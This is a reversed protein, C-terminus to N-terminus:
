KEPSEPLSFNVLGLTVTNDIEAMYGRAVARRSELWGSKISRTLASDNQSISRALREAEVDVEASAVIIAGGHIFQPSKHTGRHADRCGCWWPLDVTVPARLRCCCWFKTRSPVADGGFRTRSCRRLIRSNVRSRFGCIKGRYGFSNPMTHHSGTRQSRQSSIHDHRITFFSYGTSRSRSLIM